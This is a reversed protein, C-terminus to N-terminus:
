SKKARVSALRLGEEATKGRFHKLDKRLDDSSARLARGGITRLSAALKNLEELLPAEFVRPKPDHRSGVVANVRRLVQLAQKRLEADRMLLGLIEISHTKLARNYRRGAATRLMVTDRFARLDELRQVLDTGKVSEEILCVSASCFQILGASVEEIIRLAESYAPAFETGTELTYAYVKRNESSSWQRSFAYDKATGSVGPGPPMYLRSGEKVTYSTGRVAAIAERMDNGADVLWNWDAAPIYEKYATDGLVGRVNNWMPNNFNKLPDTTQNEDDGWPYLINQGYSHVDIMASINPFVDLMHKVNRTEPESFSFLGKYVESSPNDSAHFGFYWLFEFNRNIDVGISNSNDNVRRNKRWNPDGGLSKDKQAHVRGDPNVLPFVFLDLTDVIVRITSADYTLNGFTLGTNTTYARCLKLAFTVLLDPNVLERAHLGGIFLVGPRDGAPGRAIKVARCTRQEHSAQPLEIPTCIVPYTVRLYELCDLIAQASLYGPPPAAPSSLEMAQIWEPFEAIERSARARQSSEEKVLVQYGAETLEGVQALTLLGDISYQNQRTRKATQPFLDLGFKHLGSLTPKSPATVTAFFTQPM